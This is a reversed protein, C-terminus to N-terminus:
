TEGTGHLAYPAEHEPTMGTVVAAETLKRQHGMRRLRWVGSGECALGVAGFGISWGDPMDNTSPDTESGTFYTIDLRPWPAGYVEGRPVGHMVAVVARDGAYYSVHVTCTGNSCPGEYTVIAVVNRGGHQVAFLIEGFLICGAGVAMLVWARFRAQRAATAGATFGTVQGADAAGRGGPPEKM